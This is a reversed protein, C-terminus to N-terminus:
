WMYMYLHVINISKVPSITVRLPNPNGCVVRATIFFGHEYLSADCPRAFLSWTCTCTTNNRPHIKKLVLWNTRYVSMYVYVYFLLSFYFCSTVITICCLLVDTSIRIITYTLTVLFPWRDHTCPTPWQYQILRFSLCMSVIPHQIDSSM